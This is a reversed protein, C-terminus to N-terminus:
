FYFCIDLNTKHIVFEDYILNCKLASDSFIKAFNTTNFYVDAITILLADIIMVESNKFKDYNFTLILAEVSVDRYCFISFM